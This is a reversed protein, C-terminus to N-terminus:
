VKLDSIHQVEDRYFFFNLLYENFFVSNYESFEVVDFDYESIPYLGM